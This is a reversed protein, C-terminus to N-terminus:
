LAGVVEVVALQLVYPDLSGLNEQTADRLVELVVGLDFILPLGQAVLDLGAERAKVGGAVVELTRQVEAEQLRQFTHLYHHGMIKVSDGAHMM